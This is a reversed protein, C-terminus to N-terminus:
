TGALEEIHTFGVFECSCIEMQPMGQKMGSLVELRIKEVDDKTPLVSYNDTVDCAAFDNIPYPRLGAEDYAMKTSKRILSVKYRITIHYM